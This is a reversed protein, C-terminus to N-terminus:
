QMKYLAYDGEQTILQWNPRIVLTPYTYKEAPGILIYTPTIEALSNSKGGFYQRISTERDTHNGGHTWVHGPFGLYLPRGALVVASNHIPATLIVDDPKTNARIQKAFSVDQKSWVQWSPSDSLTIQFIDLGGSIIHFTIFTAIVSPVLLSKTRFLNVSVWGVLPLSFLLWYVFLKTNDWEWPAFIWINAVIFILLASLAFAKIEKKAPQTLGFIIAPLIFGTNKLWFLMFGDKASMWGLQLHIFTSASSIGTKYLLIQPLGVIATAIFFFLWKKNFNIILLSLIVPILALVTHAHFLPLLGSLIGAMIFAPAGRKKAKLLLLLITFAIPMGFLFSRQPLLMSVVTNIMYFSDPNDSHGSVNRSLHTFFEIFPQGSASWDNAISIWGLTSGGFLFLLLAIIAAAKNSTLERSLCYFLTMLLPILILAPTTVSSSISTGTTFLIASFLNPLFPYTLPTGALIPDQPILTQSDRLLTINSMHWGIDGYANIIGTHLGTPKDILLKPAILSFLGLILLLIILATKDLHCDRWHQKTSPLRLLYIATALLALLLFLPMKTNLSFLPNIIFTLATFLTLGFTTGTLLLTIKERFLKLTTFLTTGFVAPIAFIFITSLLPL